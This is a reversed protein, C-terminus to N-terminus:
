SKKKFNLTRLDHIYAGEGHVIEGFFGQRAMNLTLLEFFDYCCNELMMCHKRTTESTEVLQWCEDITVAAPVETAVHKGHKMAYVAMPTHLQWPTCIYILDIDNSECLAKWGENGSYSKADPMGAKQLIKQAADVRDPFKDCMGNIEVGEIVSMREVAGPGRMGLGIIGMRVKDMPPAAYGCMNFHQIGSSSHLSREIEDDTTAMVPMGTAIFGGGIAIQKLFERRDNAM